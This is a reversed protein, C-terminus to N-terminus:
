EGLCEEQVSRTGRGSGQWGCMCSSGEDYLWILSLHSLGAPAQLAQLTQCRSPLWCSSLAVIRYDSGVVPIGFLGAMAGERKRGWSPKFSCPPPHQRMRIGTEYSKVAMIQKRADHVPHQGRAVSREVVKMTSHSTRLRAKTQSRQVRCLKQFIRDAEKAKKKFQSAEKKQTEEEQSREQM